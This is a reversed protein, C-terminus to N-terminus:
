QYVPSCVHQKNKKTLLQYAQRFYDSNFDCPSVVQGDYMVVDIDIPMHGTAKSQPTRGESTEIEAILARLDNLSLSSSCRAVINLYDHGLGSVDASEVTESCDHITMRSALHHIASSLRQRRDAVNSGLCLVVENSM